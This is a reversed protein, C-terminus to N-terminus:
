APNVVLGVMKFRSPTGHVTRLKVCIASTTLVLVIFVYGAITGTKRAATVRLAQKVNNHDFCM